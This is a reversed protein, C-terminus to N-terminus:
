FLITIQNKQFSNKVVDLFKNREIPKTLYDDAGLSFALSEQSMQSVM